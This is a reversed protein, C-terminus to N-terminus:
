KKEEKEVKKNSGEAIDVLRQITKRTILLQRIPARSQPTNLLTELKDRDDAANELMKGIEDNVKDDDVEIKEEETVKGLVLSNIVRKSALPRLEERLQEETKDVNKLYDELGRGQMQLQRSQENLFREIEMEVLIPPFEVQAIDAVAEIVKEEFDTRAKEESRLRLNTAIQERLSDMNEIDPNVQKALEDDPEPLIEQKIEGVKVKFSAEKGALEAKPYSSPLQLSFEKEEGKKMGILQEAFGLAPFSFDRIVQYQFGERNILPEDGVHSEIDLIVLDDFDVPREAPEWVAQQHRLQEIVANVADEKVEVPDSALKIKRYDGLKVTPQLPVVAKFIVPDPQVMEINPQAIPKIEQEEIAKEYAEPLLHNLADELLSEKGIHRELMQRPAKGKRFGPVNAKKVLRRYSEELSKEMEAPEMEITLFAQSNEVKEKTVKV